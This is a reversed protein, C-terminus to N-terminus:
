GYFTKSGSTRRKKGRFCFFFTHRYLFFVGFFIHITPAIKNDNGTTVAHLRFNWVSRGDDNLTIQLRKGAFYRENSQFAGGVLRFVDNFLDTVQRIFDFQGGVILSIFGKLDRKRLDDLDLFDNM